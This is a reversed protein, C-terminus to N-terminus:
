RRPLFPSVLEDYRLGDVWKVGGDAMLLHGGARTWHGPTEFALVKSSPDAVQSLNGLPVYRWTPESSWAPGLRPPAPLYRPSLTSVVDDDSLPLHGGHDAAYARLARGIEALTTATVAKDASERATRLSPLALGFVIGALLTIAVVAAGLLVFPSRWPTPRDHTRPALTDGAPPM